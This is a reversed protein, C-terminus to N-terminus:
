CLLISHVMWSAVLTHMFSVHISAVMTHDIAEAHLSSVLRTGLGMGLKKDSATCRPVLSPPFPMLRKLPLFYAAMFASWLCDLSHSFSSLRWRWGGCFRQPGGGSQHPHLFQLLQFFGEFFCVFWLVFASSAVLPVSAPRM